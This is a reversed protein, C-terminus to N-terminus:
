RGSLSGPLVPFATQPLQWNQSHSENWRTSKCTDANHDTRRYGKAGPIFRMPWLRRELFNASEGVMSKASELPPQWAPHGASEQDM